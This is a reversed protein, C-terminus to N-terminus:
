TPPLRYTVYLKCVAGAATLLHFIMHQAGSSNLIQSCGPRSLKLYSKGEGGGIYLHLVGQPVPPRIALASALLKAVAPM